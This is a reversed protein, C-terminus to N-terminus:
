RSETTKVLKLIFATKRNDADVFMADMIRGFFGKRAMVVAYRAMISEAAKPTIEGWQALEGVIQEFLNTAHQQMDDASLQYNEFTPM